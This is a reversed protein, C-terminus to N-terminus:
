SHALEMLHAIMGRLHQECIYYVALLTSIYQGFFLFRTTEPIDIINDRQSSIWISGKERSLDDWQPDVCGRGRRSGKEWDTIELKFEVTYAHGNDMKTGREFIARWGKTDVLEMNFKDSEIFAVLSKKLKREHLLGTYWHNEDEAFGHDSKPRMYMPVNVTSNHSALDKGDEFVIKWSWGRQNKIDYPPDFSLRRQQKIREKIFDKLSVLDDETFRDLFEIPGINADPDGM